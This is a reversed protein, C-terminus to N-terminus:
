GQVRVKGTMFQHLLTSFLSDLAAKLKEERALKQAMIALMRAITDQEDFPFCASLVPTLPRM